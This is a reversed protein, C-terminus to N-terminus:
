QPSHKFTMGIVSGEVNEGGIIGYYIEVLLRMVTIVLVCLKSCPIYILRQTIGIHCTMNCVTHSCVRVYVCVCQAPQINM